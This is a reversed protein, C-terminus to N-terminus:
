KQAQEEYYYASKFPSLGPRWAKDNWLFDAYSTVQNWINYTIVQKRYRSFRHSWENFRETIIATHNGVADCSFTMRFATDWKQLSPFYTESICTRGKGPQEFGCSTRNEPQWAQSMENWLSSSWSTMKQGTYRYDYRVDRVKGTPSILETIINHQADRTFLRREKIEWTNTEIVWQERAAEVIWGATDFRRTERYVPTYDGFVTDLMERTASIIHAKIDALFTRKWTPIFSSSAENWRATESSLPVGTIPQYNHLERGTLKVVGDMEAFNTTELCRDGYPEYKYHVSDIHTGRTPFFFTYSTSVLRPAGKLKHREASYLALHEEGTPSLPIVPKGPQAKAECAILFLLIAILGASLSTRM